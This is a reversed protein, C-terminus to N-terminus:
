LSPALHPTHPSTYPTLVQGDPHCTAVCGRPEIAMPILRQHVMRQRIVRDAQKFAADLDGNAVSWTFAVNTGLDPHTLPSGKALAAEPDSVVPLPEYDVEILDLADRATYRDAAVVAAVPHGVFYVRDGALVTHKPIRSDPMPSACPVLGCKDNVDAGTFVGVVGPVARAAETRISNIRAHAHPSRLIVAHLMGPLSLDDVYTGIGKILRPDEVRKLARGVYPKPKAPPKQAKTGKKKATIM